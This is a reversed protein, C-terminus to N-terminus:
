ERVRCLAQVVTLCQSRGDLDSVASAAPAGRVEATTETTM